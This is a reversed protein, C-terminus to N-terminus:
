LPPKPRVRAGPPPDDISGCMTASCTDFPSATFGGWGKVEHLGLGGLEGDDNFQLGPVLDGNEPFRGLGFYLGRSSAVIWAVLEGEHGEIVSCLASEVPGLLEGCGLNEKMTDIYEEAIRFRMKIGAEDGSSGARAFEAMEINIDLDELQLGFFSASVYPRVCQHLAFAVERDDIDISGEGGSGVDVGLRLGAIPVVPVNWESSLGAKVGFGGTGDLKFFYAGTTVTGGLGLTMVSFAPDASLPNTTNEAEYCAGVDLNGLVQAPSSGHFDHAFGSLTFEGLKVAGRDERATAFLQVYPSGDAAGLWGAASATGRGLFPSTLENLPLRVGIQEGIATLDPHNGGGRVLFMWDDGENQYTLQAATKLLGPIVFQGALEFYLDAEAPSSGLEWEKVLGGATGSFTVAGVQPAFVSQNRIQQATTGTPSIAPLSAIGNVAMRSLDIAALTARTAADAVHELNAVQQITQELSARNTAQGLDLLGGEGPKLVALSRLYGYGPDSRHQTPTLNAKAGRRLDGLTALLLNPITGENRGPTNSRCTDPPLLDGARCEGAFLRMTKELNPDASLIAVVDGAIKPTAIALELVDATEGSLASGLGVYPVGPVPASPRGWWLTNLARSLTAGPAFADVAGLGFRGVIEFGSRPDTPDFEKLARVSAAFPADGEALGAPRPCATAEASALWADFGEAAGDLLVKAREDPRTSLLGPSSVLGHLTAIPALAVVGPINAGPIAENVACTLRPVGEGRVLARTLSALREAQAQATAPPPDALLARNAQAFDLAWGSLGLGLPGAPAPASDFAAHSFVRALAIELPDGSALDALTNKVLGETMALLSGGPPPIGDTIRRVNPEELLAGTLDLTTRAFADVAEPNRRLDLGSKAIRGALGTWYEGPPAGARYGQALSAAAADMVALWDVPQAGQDGFLAAVAGDIAAAGVQLGATTAPDPDAGGASVIASKAVNAITRGPLEGPAPAALKFISEFATRVDFRGGGASTPGPCAAFGDDWLFGAMERAAGFRYGAGVDVLPSALRSALRHALRLHPGAQARVPDLAAAAAAFRDSTARVIKAEPSEILGAEAPLVVLDEELRRIRDIELLRELEAMRADPRDLARVRAQAEASLRELHATLRALAERGEPDLSAAEASNAAESAAALEADIAQSRREAETLLWRDTQRVQLEDALRQAMSRISLVLIDDGPAIAPRNRKRRLERDTELVGRTIGALRVLGRRGNAEDMSHRAANEDIWAKARARGDFAPDDNALWGLLLFRAYRDPVWGEFGPDLTAARPASSGSLATRFLEILAGRATEGLEGTIQGSEIEAWADTVAVYAAVLQEIEVADHPDRLLAAQLGSRQRAQLGGIERDIAMKLADREVGEIGRQLAFYILGIGYRLAGDAEDRPASSVTSLAVREKALTLLRPTQNHIHTLIATIDIGLVAAEAVLNEIATLARDLGGADGRAGARTAEDTAALAVLRLARRLKVDDPAVAGNAMYLVTSIGRVYASAATRLTSISCTPIRDLRCGELTDTRCGAQEELPCAALARDLAGTRQKAVTAAASAIATEAATSDIGMARSDGAASTLAPLAFREIEEASRNSDAAAATARALRLTMAQRMANGVPRPDVGLRGAALEREHHTEQARALADPSAAAGQAVLSQLCANQADALAAVAPAIQAVLPDVGDCTSAEHLGIALRLAGRARLAADTDGCARSVEPAVRRLVVDLPHAVVGNQAFSRAFTAAVRPSEDLGAEEAHGLDTLLAGVPDNPASGSLLAAPTVNAARAAQLVDLDNEIRVSLANAITEAARDAMGPVLWGERRASEVLAVLRRIRLISPDVLFEQREREFRNLYAVVAARRPDSKAAALLPAPPPARIAPADADYAFSQRIAGACTGAGTSGASGVTVEELGQENTRRVFSEDFRDIEEFRDGIAEHRRKRVAGDASRAEENWLDGLLWRAISPLDVLCATAESARDSGPLLVTKGGGAQLAVDGGWVIQVTSGEIVIGLGRAAEPTLSAGDARFVRGSADGRAIAEGLPPTADGGAPATTGDRLPGASRLRWNGCTEAVVVPFRPRWLWSTGSPDHRRRELLAGDIPVDVIRVAQRLANNAVLDYSRGDHVLLATEGERWDLTWGPIALSPHDGHYRLIHGDKPLEAIQEVRIDGPMARFEWAGPVDFRDVRIVSGGSWAYNRPSVGPPAERWAAARLIGHLEGAAQGPSPPSTVEIRRTPHFEGFAVADLVTVEGAGQTGEAEAPHKVFRVRNKQADQYSRSEPIVGTRILAEELGDLDETTHPNGSVGAVAAPVRLTHELGGDHRPHGVPYRAHFFVEAEGESPRFVLRERVGGYADARRGSASPDYGPLLAEDVHANLVLEAPELLAARAKQVATRVPVDSTGREEADLLALQAAIAADANSKSPDFIPLGRLAAGLAGLADCSGAAEAPAGAPRGGSSPALARGVSALLDGVGPLTLRGSPLSDELAGLAAAAVDLAPDSTDPSPTAVADV